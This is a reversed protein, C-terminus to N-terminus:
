RRIAAIVVLFILAGLAAVLSSAWSFDFVTFRMVLNTVFGAVVAGIVGVLYNIAEQRGSISTTVRNAVYGGILGIVIWVIVGM